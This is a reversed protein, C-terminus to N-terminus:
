VNVILMSVCAHDAKAESEGRTYIQVLVDDRKFDWYEIQNHRGLSPKSSFGAEILPKAYDDFDLACVPAMDANEHTQDDFSFMLRDPDGKPGPLSVLNYVWEDNLAAGFGYQKADSDSFNVKIGTIEEIRKPAIDERGRIQTVLTLVRRGIDEATTPLTSANMDPRHTNDPLANSSSIGASHSCATSGLVLMCCLLHLAKAISADGGVTRRGSAARHQDRATHGSVTNVLHQSRIPLM